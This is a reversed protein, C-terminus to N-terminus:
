LKVLPIDGIHRDYLYPVQPGVFMKGHITDLMYPFHLWASHWFTPLRAYRFAERATVWGDNNLDAVGDLGQLLHFTFISSKLQESWNCPCFIYKGGAAVVARGFQRLAFMRGSYCHDLIIAIHKSDLEDVWSDFEKDTIKTAEDFFRSTANHTFVYAHGKLRENIPTKWGHDAYYILVVDSENEREGLWNVIANHINDKTANENLLFRINEEEWNESSLLKEYFATASEDLYEEDPTDVGVFEEIGIVVAYFNRENPVDNVDCRTTGGTTSTAVGAVFFLMLAGVVLIKKTM